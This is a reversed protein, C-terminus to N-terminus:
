ADAGHQSAALAANRAEREMRRRKWRPVFHSHAVHPDAPDIGGTTPGCEEYMSRAIRAAVPFAHFREVHRMGREAMRQRHETDLVLRELVADLSAGPEAMVFPLTQTGYVERMRRRIEPRANGVVPMGLAWAEISNNGYGLDFQDVLIDGTAKQRLCTEHRTWEIIKLEVPLGRAKLRAVSAIVDHTGKIARNTPAHVIRVVKGPRYFHARIDAMREVDIYQPLWRITAGEPASLLLDVTSVTQVMGLAAAEDYLRKPESRFITGHHHLLVPKRRGRDLKAYVAPHNNLHVVDAWDWLEVARSWKWREDLPFQLYNQTSTLVRVEDDPFVSAFAAKAAISQGGTDQGACLHLIKM